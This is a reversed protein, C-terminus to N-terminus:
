TDTVDLCFLHTFVITAGFLQQSLNYSIMTELPIVGAYSTFRHSNTLFSTHPSSPEEAGPTENNLPQILSKALTFYSFYFAASLHKM